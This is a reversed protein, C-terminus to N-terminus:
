DSNARCINVSVDVRILRFRRRREGGKGDVDIRTISVSAQVKWVRKAVAIIDKV